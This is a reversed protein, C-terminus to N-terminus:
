SFEVADILVSMPIDRATFIKFPTFCPSTSDAKSNQMTIAAIIAFDSDSQSDPYEM